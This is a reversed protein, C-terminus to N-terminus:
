VPHAEATVPGGPMTAQWHLRHIRHVFLWSGDIRACKDTYTLGREVVQGVTALYAIASTHLTAEGPASGPEAVTNTMLHTSASAASLASTRFARLFFEAIGTHGSAIIGTSVFELQADAAFLGILDHVNRSDVAHAYRHVLELLDLRDVISLTPSAM